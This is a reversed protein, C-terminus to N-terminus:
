DAAPGQWAVEYRCVDGGKARCTTEVMTVESAGCMEMAEKYWGIVTLCDNASYTEAEYTTLIGSTPSRTEYTRYGSNYYFSYIAQAKKMFAEPDNPELMLRHVGSLNERASVRGMEEFVETSGGGLLDVIAQDLNKNIEFPYWVSNVIIGRLLKQHDEPLSSVVRQWAEEGFSKLVFEYRAKIINGKVKMM